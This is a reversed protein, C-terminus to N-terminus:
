QNVRIASEITKEINEFAILANGTSLCPICLQGIWVEYVSSGDSLIEEVLNLQCGGMAGEFRPELRKINRLSM